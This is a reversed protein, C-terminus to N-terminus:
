VDLVTTNTNKQDSRHSWDNIKNFLDVCFIPYPFPWALECPLPGRAVNGEFLLFCFYIVRFKFPSLCFCRKDRPLRVWAHYGYFIACTMFIAVVVDITYHQRSILVTTIGFSSVIIMTLPLYPYLPKPCNYWLVLCVLTFVMTHGSYITDGCMIRNEDASYGGKFVLNLAQVIMSGANDSFNAPLCRKDKDNFPPPLYTCMLFMARLLYLSGAMLCIRRFVITWHKHFLLVTFSLLPCIMVVIDAAEWAWEQQPIFLFLLDPLPRPQPVSYRHVFGIVFAGLLTACFLFAVSALTKLYERPYMDEPQHLPTEENPMDTGRGGHEYDDERDEHSPRRDADASIKTFGKQRGRIANM